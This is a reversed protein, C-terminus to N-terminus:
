SKGVGLAQSNAISAAIKQVRRFWQVQVMGNAQQAQIPLGQNQQYNKPRRDCILGSDAMNQSHEGVQLEAFHDYVYRFLM